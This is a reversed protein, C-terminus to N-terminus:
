DDDKNSVATNTKLNKALKKSLFHIWSSIELISSATNKFLIVADRENPTFSTVSIDIDLSQSM